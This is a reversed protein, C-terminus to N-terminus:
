LKWKSAGKQILVESLEKMLSNEDWQYTGDKDLANRVLARKQEVLETFYEDITESAIMYTVQINESLQGLRAFRGEAQEENAPNWQRELMVADSVFQLNLAEGAALTSALMIKDSGNKFKEVLNYRAEASLSSNLDLPEQDNLLKKLKLKLLGVVNHHHAFIVLKKDPYNEIFGSVWEVADDVKSLGTLQRLKNMIALKNSQLTFEDADSDGYVLKELEKLGERYAPNYRPNLEVHFFQRDVEPIEPAVEKRTRRIIFDKTEEKFKASDKLGGVKVGYGGWYSDVYQELFKNYTRFKTPQILNLITFYEGANNKIPTGSLGMVHPINRSSVFRQIAKSRDALHNKISQCEDLVIFKIPSYILSFIKEHKKMLDYSIIYIDMGPLAQQNGANIVQALFGEYGCYEVLEHFWQHLVSAKTVIVAPLVTDQHLKIVGIAEITKGLGQEDAILCRINSREAFKIGEIQYDRPKHHKTLSEFHYNVEAATTLQEESIM